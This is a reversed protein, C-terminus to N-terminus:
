FLKRHTSPNHSMLVKNKIKRCFIPWQHLFLFNLASPLAGSMIRSWGFCPLPLTLPAPAATVAVQLSSLHTHTIETQSVVGILYDQKLVTNACAQAWAFVIVQGELSQHLVPTDGILFDTTPRATPRDPIFSHGEHVSLSCPLCNFPQRCGVTATHSSSWDPGCVCAPVCSGRPRAGHLPPWSKNEESQQTTGSTLLSIGAHLLLYVPLRGCTQTM